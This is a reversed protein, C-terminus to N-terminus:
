RIEQWLGGQQVWRQRWIQATESTLLLKYEATQEEMQLQITLESWLNGVQNQIGTISNRRLYSVIWGQGVGLEEQIIVMYTSTLLLLTDATIPKRFFLLRRKWSGPQFVLDELEEGPLLGHIRIGNSFKLPLKKVAQQVAPSDVRKEMTTIPTAKTAQLMNRMSPSLIDWYVANFEVGLRTPLDQGRAVIELFGYLLILTVKLYMLGCSRLYTIQPEQGPWVSAQLHVIDAHTFMLAQKPVYSWGRHIQPPFFVITQLAEGTALREVAPSQLEAPLDSITKLVSPRREFGRTLVERKLQTLRKELDVSTTSM